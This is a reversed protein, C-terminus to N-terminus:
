RAAVTTLCRSIKTSAAIQKRGTPLLRIRVCQLLHQETAKSKHCTGRNNNWPFTTFPSGTVHANDPIPKSRLPALVLSPFLGTLRRSRWVEVQGRKHSSVTSVLRRSMALHFHVAKPDYLVYTCAATMFGWLVNKHYM